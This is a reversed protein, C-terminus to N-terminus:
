FARTFRVSVSIEPQRPGPMSMDSSLLTTSFCTSTSLQWPPMKRHCLLLQSTLAPHPQFDTSHAAGLRGQRMHWIALKTGGRNLLCWGCCSFFEAHLLSANHAACSLVLCERGGGRGAVCAIQLWM